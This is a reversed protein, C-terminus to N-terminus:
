RFTPLGLAEAKPLECLVKTFDYDDPEDMSNTVEDRRDRRLGSEIGGRKEGLREVLLAPRNREKTGDDRETPRPPSAIAIHFVTRDAQEGTGHRKRYSM